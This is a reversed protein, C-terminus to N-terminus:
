LSRPIQGAWRAAFRRVNQACDSRREKESVRERERELRTRERAMQGIIEAGM